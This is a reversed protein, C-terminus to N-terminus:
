PRNKITEYHSRVAAKKLKNRESHLHKILFRTRDQVAKVYRKIEGVGHEASDIAAIISSIKHRSLNGNSWDAVLSAIQQSIASEATYIQKIIADTKHMAGAYQKAQLVLRKMDADIRHEMAQLASSDGKLEENAHQILEKRLTRLTRDALKEAFHIREESRKSYNLIKRCLELLPKGRKESLLKVHVPQINGPLSRVEQLLPKMHHLAQIERVQLEEVQETEKKERSLFGILSGQEAAEKQDVKWESNGSGVGAGSFKFHSVLKVVEIVIMFIIVVELIALFGGLWESITTVHDTM